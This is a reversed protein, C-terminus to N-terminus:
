HAPSQALTSRNRGARKSCYLAQDARELLTEVHEGPRRQAVGFSATVALTPHEDVSMTSLSARLPDIRNFADEGGVGPMLLAFEEGGIRAVHGDRGLGDALHGAFSTLTADGAAHGHRDNIQKFYDIDAIAISFPRARHRRRNCVSHLTHEFGLRNLVGTLPDTHVLRRLDVSFDFAILLLTFLAIAACTPEVTAACIIVYLSHTTLLGFQEALAALAAVADIAALSGLMWVVALEAASARQGPTVVMTAAWGMVITSVAPTIAARLPMAPGIATAILASAAFLGLIPLTARWRVAGRRLRFGEVFLLVSALGLLDAVPGGHLPPGGRWSQSAMIGWQAASAAFAASWVLAHRVPSLFRHVVFLAIAAMGMLLCPGLAILVSPSQM